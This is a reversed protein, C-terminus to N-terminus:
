LNLLASPAPPSQLAKSRKKNQNSQQNKRPTKGSANSALASFISSTHCYMFEFYSEIIIKGIEPKQNKYKSLADNLIILEDYEAHKPQYDPDNYVSLQMTEETDKEYAEADCDSEDVVM